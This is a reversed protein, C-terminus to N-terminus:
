GEQKWLIFPTKDVLMPLLKEVIYEQVFQRTAIFPIIESSPCHQMMVILQFDDDKRITINYVSAEEVDEEFPKVETPTYNLGCIKLMCPDGLEFSEEDHLQEIVANSFKIFEEDSMNQVTKGILQTM